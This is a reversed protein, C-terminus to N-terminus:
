RSVPLGRVYNPSRGSSRGFSQAAIHHRKPNLYDRIAEDDEAPSLWSDEITVSRIFPHLCRHKAEDTVLQNHFDRRWAADAVTSSRPAVAAFEANVAKSLLSIAENRASIRSEVESALSIGADLAIRIDALDRSRRRRALVWFTSIAAVLLLVAVVQIMDTM